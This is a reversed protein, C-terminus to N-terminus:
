WSASSMMVRVMPVNMDRLFYLSQHNTKGTNINAARTEVYHYAAKTQSEIQSELSKVQSKADNQLAQSVESHM